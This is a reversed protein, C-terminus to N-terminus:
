FTIHHHHKLEFSVHPKYKRSWTMMISFIYNVVFPHIIYNARVLFQIIFLLSYWVLSDYLLWILSSCGRWRLQKLNWIILQVFFFLNWIISSCRTNIRWLSECLHFFVFRSVIRWMVSCFGFTSEPIQIRSEPNSRNKQM